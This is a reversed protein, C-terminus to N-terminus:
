CINLPQLVNTCASVRTTRIFLLELSSVRFFCLVLFRRSCGREKHSYVNLTELTTLISGKEIAKGRLSPPVRLPIAGWCSVLLIKDYRVVSLHPLSLRSYFFHCPFYIIEKYLLFFIHWLLVPLRGQIFSISFARSQHSSFFAAVSSNIMGLM